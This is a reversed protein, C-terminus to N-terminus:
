MIALKYSFMQITFLILVKKYYKIFRISVTGDAWESGDFGENLKTHMPELFDIASTAEDPYLLADLAVKWMTRGAESGFEYQPTGSGTFAGSKKELSDSDVEQVLAWNPVLGTDSCQTTDFFKYSTDILMNWKEELSLNDGFIPMTYERTGDYSLHFDRMARYAGPSHYSPNNGDSDWGGWCTGLKILRHSGTDSLVTNDALFQTISGDTWQRLEEYWSPLSSGNELAKIAVIMGLIADADADPTAGTGEVNRLDASHKWGPLCPATGSLHYCYKTNQCSGSSSNICMTKWGNFYGYFQNMATERNSDTEDLSALAIASSLLGSGQSESLVSGTGASGLETVTLTYPDTSVVYTIDEMDKAHTAIGIYATDVTPDM